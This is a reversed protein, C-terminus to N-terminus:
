LASLISLIQSESYDRSKFYSRIDSESGGYHKIQRAATLEANTPSYGKGTTYSAAGSANSTSSTSSSAAYNELLQGIYSKAPNSNPMDDYAKAYSLYQAATLGTGSTSGTSSKGSSTQATSQAAKQQQWAFYREQYDNDYQQQTQSSAYQLMKLADSWEQQAQSDAYQREQFQNEWEQQKYGKYADYVGTGTELVWQLASQVKNWFDTSEQEADVDAQQRDLDLQDYWSGATSAEGRATAAESAAQTYNGALYDRWDAWDAMKGSYQSYNQREAQQMAGVLASQDDSDAQYTDYALARLQLMMDDMAAMQEQYSQAAAKDAYGAGYGSALKAANAATSAAAAQASATYDQAYRRYNEDTGASYSQAFRNAAMRELLDDVETPMEVEVGRQIQYRRGNVSVFVDGKYRRNDKFLKVKVLEPEATEATDTMTVNQEAAETATANTKKTAM